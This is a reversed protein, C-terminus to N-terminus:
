EGKKHGCAEEYSWFGKCKKSNPTMKFDTLSESVCTTSDNKNPSYMNWSCETCSCNLDQSEQVKEVKELMEDIGIFYDKSM